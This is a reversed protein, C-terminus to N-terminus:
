HSGTDQDTIADRIDSLEASSDLVVQGDRVSVGLRTLIPQADPFDDADAYKRYLDLFLPQDLQQDLKAFFERGSWTSASPLCCRQLQGLVVDLSEKGNSRRRLEVDAMLAISAGSWYVKMLTDRTGGSAADNPSLGPASESGRELGAHIKQWADQASHQGARALLVNQYYQAFGESIWRQDRNLYPLMLHSFEHTPTWETYFEGIPREHNIMLEITEGGDRTVQGFSVARDDGWSRDTSPILLVSANPNPFKGYAVAVNEATARVWPILAQLEMKDRTGLLVIRLDAGAVREVSERFSGFVAVASGSQPSATLRYYTGDDNIMQWPVFVQGGDELAFSALIEDSSLLRPRWMWLTPSVAVSSDDLISAFRDARAARGLDVNYRLCRIGAAPLVLNRSRSELAEGTDCDIANRLYSNANRSRASISEIPRDFRAEVTMIEYDADIAITYTHAASVATCALLLSVSILFPMFTPISQNNIIITRLTPQKKGVCKGNHEPETLHM